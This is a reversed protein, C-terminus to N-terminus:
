KEVRDFLIGGDGPYPKTHKNEGNWIPMPLGDPFADCRPTYDDAIRSEPHFHKCLACVPSYMRISISKDLTIVSM